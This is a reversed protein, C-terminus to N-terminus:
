KNELLAHTKTEERRQLYYLIPTAVFLSSLTGYVIGITMVLSFGFLTSGGLCVLALLVLVTTGSTMITRSLTVNLAHIVVEKFSSKRLVKLDDRIRDFIIITDNLSYGIIAMLAAITNLEIQLPVGLVHLICVSGITIIVDHALGLTAALAYKFEFRLTIYLLICALALALGYLANNRMHNSMQGSVTTWHTALANESAPTITLDQSKLADVIWVIRPNNQYSYVVDRDTEMPLGYFPRGQQELTKALFLRIHNSPSLERVQFDHSDLGHARLATEVLARYNQEQKPMLELSLSFGGVFDMGFLSRKAVLAAGSGLLAIVLSIVCAMKGFKLFDFRTTRLFSAMTLTKHKPNKVWGAFFFRTMFLATFMSSIIGIIITIAFGKVPGSDFHLLILAAIITTLNSDLIASFAKRYGAHIASAIRGTAKFEERVREFVLVNADVAMGIALIVGAIGALTMTAQINQLVAWMLLLNFLLAASAILGAFRYYGIMVGVILLLAVFTALIGQFREKVGLEPSVNKEALIFPSFTLSGAKLDAELKNIERQTFSGTIMASDKIASDLAPASIITGNLIVAMRWGKGRSMQEAASGVIKEKSYTSTWTYLDARPNIKYGDKLLQSNKVEFSLFNGKTPDYSSHVNTLNSGELAYNNFVILLPHTQNFWETFNNGRILAIKSYVDNFVNSISSEEPLPLRLGQDYLIKAADSRPEALEPDLAEGYLHRWAIRNISDVDKKNTVVAENWIDQLFRNVTDALQPNSPTFKENVVNFYMSSAKVLESASLGQAGPFDLTINSGEQRISVESLGMKNVRHYLENIGQTIDATHTVKRNNQDRLEIQVTKGGSLDLGWHLVKREDGRFYKKFSLVFNSWLPSVTPKPIDFKSDLNPNVQAAQYEDRWKLLDEHIQNEIQNLAYIRQKVNGLELIAYKKTGFVQFDERSAKLVASYFDESAFIFDKSFAVSLPYTTGPYGYFGQHKLLQRLANMDELFTQAQPSNPSSEFKKIVQGIGKAIVYISNSRFGQLPAEARTSPAYIVLGLKKDKAPLKQYTAYDWIPFVERKLDQHKPNWHATLLREVQAAKTEAISGLHLALFEESNELSNLAISFEGQSPLIEEQSERSIHAIDNYVLQELQDSLYSTERSSALSERLKQVDSHLILQLTQNPLDVLFKSILPHYEGLELTLLQHSSPWASEIKALLSSYSWPSTGSAIGTLNKKIFVTAVSLLAERQELFELKQQDATELFADSEKLAKEKDLLRVKELRVRDKLADLHSVLADLIEQANSFAGHTLAAFYRKAPPSTEGFVRVYSQIHHALTSLLDEQLAPDETHLAADILQADTSPGGVVLGLQVLRDTLVRQYLPTLTGDDEFKKSFTFYEALRKEDFHVPIKRVITIKKSDPNTEFQALSLEAPAFPILSGARPFYKKFLEADTATTFNIHVLQPNEKDLQISSTKVKLLQAFSALWSLTSAELSNVRELAQKGVQHALSTSVPQKLPQIYYFVTPLINYVTLLLVAIILSLQWRKQKEMTRYARLTFEQQSHTKSFFSVSRYQNHRSSIKRRRKLFLSNKKSVM